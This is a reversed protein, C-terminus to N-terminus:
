KEFSFNGKIGQYLSLLGCGGAKEEEEEDVTGASNLSSISDPDGCESFM